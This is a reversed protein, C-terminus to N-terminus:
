RQTVVLDDIAGLTTGGMVTIDGTAPASMTAPGVTRPSGDSREVGHITIQDGRVAITIPHGLSGEGVTLSASGSALSMAQISNSGLRIAQRDSGQHRVFFQIFSSEPLKTPTFTLDFDGVDLGLSITGTQDHVLVGDAVTPGGTGQWVLPTGGLAADSTRGGLAGSGSFGDSTIIDGPELPPTADTTASVVAGAAENGAADRVRHQFTYSTAASLGGATFTPEAQWASWAGSGVRFAYGTVARDDSAGSVTLDASVHGPVVTLVGATPPTTDPTSPELTLATKGPNDAEWALAEALTPFIPVVGDPLGGGGDAVIQEVEARAVTPLTGDPRLGQIENAM